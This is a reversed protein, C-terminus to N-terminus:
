PHKKVVSFINGNRQIPYVTPWDELIHLDWEHRSTIIAYDYGSTPDYFGGRYLDVFLDPRSFNEVPEKNTGYVVVKSNAPATRNLYEAAERFSIAWYDSEFRSNSGQLGSVLSNYYTYQYPHLDVISYIGPFLLLGLIVYQGFWGHVRQFIWELALGIVFFLSPIIFLLQRTNDYLSPQLVTFLIFPIIGWFIALIALESHITRKWIKHALIFLGIFFLLIAPETYQIGLLVPVYGIPLEYPPYYVGNFLVKGDWPFDSMYAMISQFRNIPDSWLYPWTAYATLVSIIFYAIFASLVKSKARHVAM